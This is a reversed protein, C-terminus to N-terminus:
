SSPRAPGRRARGRRLLDLLVPLPPRRLPRRRRRARGLAGGVARAAARRPRRDRDRRAVAADGRVGGRRAADRSCCRGSARCSGAASTTRAGRSCPSACARARARARRDPRGARPAAGAAGEDGDRRRGAPGVRAGPLLYRSARAPARHGGRRRPARGDRARARGGGRACGAGRRPEFGPLTAALPAAPASSTRCRAALRRSRVSTGRGRGGVYNAASTFLRENRAKEGRRGNVAGLGGSLKGRTPDPLDESESSGASLEPLDESEGPSIKKHARKRRRGVRGRANQPGHDQTTRM